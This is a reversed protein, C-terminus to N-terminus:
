RGGKAKFAPPVLLSLRLGSPSAPSHLSRDPGGGSHPLAPALGPRQGGARPNKGGLAYHLFPLCAPHWLETSPVLFSPLLFGPNLEDRPHQSFPPGAGEQGGHRDTYM